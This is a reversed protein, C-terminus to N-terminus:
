PSTYLGQLGMRYKKDAIHEQLLTPVTRGARQGELRGLAKQLSIPQEESTIAILHDAGFPPQVRLKLTYPDEHVLPNDQPFPYLYNVTGDGSLSFMTLYRFGLESIEFRIIDGAHHIGDGPRMRMVLSRVSSLNRIADLARWKDVVGQLDDLWIDRAVLDGLHSIVDGSPAHWTLEASQDPGVVTADALVRGLRGVEGASLGIAAVRTDSLAATAQAAAAATTAGPSLALVVHDDQGRPLIAPTQRSGSLRRVNERVYRRLEGRTLVGDGDDDAAGELARAFMFSLAGRKVTRGSKEQIWLEPVKENDQGAGLYTVHQQGEEAVPPQGAPMELVLMDDTITYPDALRFTINEARPDIARTLTGSHCTDVVFIVELGKRGAEELWWYFENDLIRERTGPGSDSFGGLLLVEDLGDDESGAVHEPERSGHGAYTFVLRDGPRARAMMEKWARVIADKTADENLLVTLDEVGIARLSQAIDRADNVAGKLSTGYRYRDIGIVLAHPEGALKAAAPLGPLFGVLIGVLLPAALGALRAARSTRIRSM